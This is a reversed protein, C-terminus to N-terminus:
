RQSYISWRQNHHTRVCAVGFSSSDEQQSNKRSLRDVKRGPKPSLSWFQAYSVTKTRNLIQAVFRPHCWDGGVDTGNNPALVVNVRVHEHPEANASSLRQSGPSTNGTPPVDVDSSFKNCPARVEDTPSGDTHSFQLLSEARLSTKRISSEASYTKKKRERKVLSPRLSVVSVEKEGSIVNWLLLYPKRAITTWWPVEM